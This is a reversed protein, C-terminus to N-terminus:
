ATAVIVAMVAFQRTSYKNIFRFFSEFERDFFIKRHDNRKKIKNFM